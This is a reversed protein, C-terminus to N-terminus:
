QSCLFFLLRWATVVSFIVGENALPQSRMYLTEYETEASLVVIFLFIASYELDQNLRFIKM